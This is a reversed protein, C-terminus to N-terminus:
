SAVWHIAGIILATVFFQIKLPHKKVLWWWLRDEYYGLSEITAYALHSHCGCALDRQLKQELTKLDVDRLDKIADLVEDITREADVHDKFRDIAAHAEFIETLRLRYLFTNM